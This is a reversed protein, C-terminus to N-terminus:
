ENFRLARAAARGVEGIAYAMCLSMGMRSSTTMRARAPERTFVAEDLEQRSWLGDLKWHALTSFIGNAWQDKSEESLDFFRRPAILVARFAFQYYMVNENAGGDYEAAYEARFRDFEIGRFVSAPIAVGADNVSFLDGEGAYLEDLYTVATRAFLLPSTPDISDM